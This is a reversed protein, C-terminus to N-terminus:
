QCWVGKATLRNLPQTVGAFGPVYQWYYGVLGLFAQLEPLDRSVTWEKVAQVKEPDTAVEDRGTPACVHTLFGPFIVIVADLYILVTKWHLRSFVQEM